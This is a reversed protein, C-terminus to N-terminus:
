EYTESTMHETIVEHIIFKTNQNALEKEFFMLIGELFSCVVQPRISLETASSHQKLQSFEDKSKSFFHAKYIVKVACVCFHSIIVYATHM